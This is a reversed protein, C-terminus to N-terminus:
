PWLDSMKCKDPHMRKMHNQLLFKRTFATPCVKCQFPKEGTHLIVHRKLDTSWGFRRNCYCCVYKRAEYKVIDVGQISKGKSKVPVKKITVKDTSIAATSPNFQGAQNGSNSIDLNEDEMTVACLSLPDMMDDDGEKGDDIVMGEDDDDSEEVHKSYFNECKTREKESAFPVPIEIGNVRSSTEAAISLKVTGDSRPDKPQLLYLKVVQSPAVSSKSIRAVHPSSVPTATKLLSVKKSLDVQPVITLIDPNKVSEKKSNVINSGDMQPLITLNNTLHSAIPRITTTNTTSTGTDLTSPLSSVIHLALNSNIMVLGDKELVSDVPTSTKGPLSSPTIMSLPASNIKPTRSGLNQGVAALNDMPILAIHSPASCSAKTSTVVPRVQIASATSSVLPQIQVASQSSSVLPQIHVTSHSSSALPQIQLTSQSSVIPQIQVTSQPSSVLPQIQVTSHSSVAPHIQIHQASNEARITIKPVQHQPTITVMDVARGNQPQITIQPTPSISPRRIPQPNIQTSNISTQGDGTTMKPLINVFKDKKLAAPTHSKPKLRPIPVKLIVDGNTGMYDDTRIIQTTVTMDQKGLADLKVTTDSLSTSLVTDAFSVGKEVNKDSESSQSIFLNVTPKDWPVILDQLLIPPLCNERSRAGHTGFHWLLSRVTCFQMPCEPCKLPTKIAPPRSSIKILPPIQKKPKQPRLEQDDNFSKGDTHSAADPGIESLKDPSVLSICGQTNSERGDSMKFEEEDEGTDDSSSEIIGNKDYTDGVEDDDDEEKIVLDGEEDEIYNDQIGNKERNGDKSNLELTVIAGTKQETVQVVSSASHITVTETGEVEDSCGSDVLQALAVSLSVHDEEESDPQPEMEPHEIPVVVTSSESNTSFNPTINNPLRVTDKEPALASKLIAREKSASNELVNERVIKNKMEHHEEQGEVNQNIGKGINKTCIDFPPKCTGTVEKEGIDQVCKEKMESLEEVSKLQQTKVHQDSYTSVLSHNEVNEVGREIVQRCKDSDQKHTDFNDTSKDSGLLRGESYFHGVANEVSRFAESSNVSGTSFADHGGSNVSNEINQSESIQCDPVVEEIVAKNLCVDEICLTEEVGRSNDVVSCLTSSSFKQCNDNVLAVCPVGTREDNDVFECKNVCVNKCDVSSKIDKCTQRIQSKYDTEDDEEVFTVKEKKVYERALLDESLTDKNTGVDSRGEKKKVKRRANGAEEPTILGRKTGECLQMREMNKIDTKSRDKKDKEKKVSKQPSKEKVNTPTPKSSKKPVAWVRREITARRSSRRLINGENKSTKNSRTKLTADERHLKIPSSSGTLSCNRSRGVGNTPLENVKCKM